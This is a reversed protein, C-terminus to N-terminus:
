LADFDDFMLSLFPQDPGLRKALTRFLPGAAVCFFPPKSGGARIPSVRSQTPANPDRLRAALDEITPAQFLVGLSVKKGLIKEIRTLLKAAHLSDGGLDDFFDSKLFDAFDRGMDEAVAVGPRRASLENAQYPQCADTWACALARRDVKGSTTLPMASLFGYRAPLMYDPSKQKLYSRLQAELQEESFTSKQVPVVYAILSRHGFAGDCAVVVVQHVAAHESLVAEIETL